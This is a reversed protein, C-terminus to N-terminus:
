QSNEKRATATWDNRPWSGLLAATDPWSPHDRPTGLGVEKTQGREPFMHRALVVQLQSCSATLLDGQSHANCRVYFLFFGGGGGGGGARWRRDGGLEKPAEGGLDTPAEKSRIL